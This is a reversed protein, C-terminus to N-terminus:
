LASACGRAASATAIKADPSFVGSATYSGSPTASASNASCGSIGAGAATYTCSESCIPWGRAPHRACGTVSRGREAAAVRSTALKSAALSPSRSRGTSGGPIASAESSPARSGGAM